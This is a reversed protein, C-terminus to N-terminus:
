QGIHDDEDDPSSSEKKPTPVIRPRPVGLTWTCTGETVVAPPPSEPKAKRASPGEITVSVHDRVPASDGM